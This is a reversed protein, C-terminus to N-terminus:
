LGLAMEDYPPPLFQYLFKHLAYGYFDLQISATYSAIIAAAPNGVAATTKYDRIVLFSNNQIEKCPTSRRTFGDHPQITLIATRTSVQQDLELLNEIRCVLFLLNCCLEARLDSLRCM